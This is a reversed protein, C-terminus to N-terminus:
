FVYRRFLCAIGTLFLVLTSPIPVEEGGQGGGGGNNLLYMM